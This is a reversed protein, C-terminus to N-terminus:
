GYGYRAVLTDGPNQRVEALRGMSDYSLTTGNSGARTTMRGDADYGYGGSTPRNAAEVLVHNSILSFGLRM